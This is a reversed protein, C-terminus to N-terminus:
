KKIKVQAWLREHFYYLVMKTVVEVSGISLAMSTNSTIFYSILITDLTGLIRWSITKALSKLNSDGTQTEQIKRNIVSDLLM